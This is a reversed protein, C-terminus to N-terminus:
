IIATVGANTLYPVGNRLEVLQMELLLHLDPASVPSLKLRDAKIDRLTWRLKIARDTGAQTAHIDRDTIRKPLTSSLNAGLPEVVAPATAEPESPGSAAAAPFGPVPSLYPSALPPACPNLGFGELQKNIMEVGVGSAVVGNSGTNDQADGATPADQRAQSATLDKAAQMTWDILHFNKV